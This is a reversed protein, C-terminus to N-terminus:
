CDRRGAAWSGGFEPLVEVAFDEMSRLIQGRSLLGNYQWMFVWSVPTVDLDIRLPENIDGVAANRCLEIGLQDGAGLGEAGAAGRQQLVHEAAAAYFDVGEVAPDDVAALVDFDGGGAVVGDGFDDAAEGYAGEMGVGGVELLDEGPEVDILSLGAPATHRTPWDPLARRHQGM